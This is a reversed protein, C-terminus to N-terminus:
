KQTGKLVEIAKDLQRDVEIRVEQLINNFFIQTEIDMVGTAPMGTRQQFSKVALTLERDYVDDMEGTYYGLVDLRQKIALVGSGKDGEQYADAFQFAEMEETNIDKKKNTVKIDPNIGKGHVKEGGPLVYEGMTLKIKGMPREETSLLGMFEQVTGKGHTTQGILTGLKYDRVNGAFLESGSASGGNILVALEYYPAKLDGVSRLPHPYSSNKYETTVVTKGQPVFFGLTEVVSILGGGPNDRLDVVLKKIGKERFFADAEAMGSPTMSNFVSISVYGINDELVRYYVSGSQVVARPVSVSIEQEGRKLVLEVKTGEPGKVLATLDDVTCGTVDQGNVQLFLDGAQIGFLEAPGGKIVAEVGVAGQMRKVTVGIGVYEPEMSQVFGDLEDPTFYDTHPDFNDAATDILDELMEPHETLAKAAVARLIQEKDAEFQYNAFLGSLVADFYAAADAQQAEAFASVSGFVLLLSLCLSLVKKSVYKM